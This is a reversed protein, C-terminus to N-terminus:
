QKEQHIGMKSTLIECGITTMTTTTMMMMM